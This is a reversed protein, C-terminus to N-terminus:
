SAVQKFEPIHIAIWEKLKTRAFNVHWKSTGESMGLLAAIEKHAFGDVAYLNFVKRSMDPLKGILKELQEVNMKDVYTNMTASDFRDEPETFDAFETLENTKRNKRFEDIVTNIMIRRIWLAFPVESRYKPIGNLIKLFAQNLLAEGDERNHQYRMCINMLFSYCERYLRHQAKRDREQCARILAEDIELGMLLQRTPM